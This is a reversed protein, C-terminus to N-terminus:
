SVGQIQSRSFGGDLELVRGSLSSFQDSSSQFSACEAALDSLCFEKALLSLSIANENTISM